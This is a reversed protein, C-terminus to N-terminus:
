GEDGVQVLTALENHWLGLAAKRLKTPSRRRKSCFCLSPSFSFPLSPQRTAWHEKVTDTPRSM